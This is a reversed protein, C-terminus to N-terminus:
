KGIVLRASATGETLEGSVTSIEFGSLDTIINDLYGEVSTKLYLKNGAVQGTNGTGTVEYGLGQLSDAAKKAAGPVGSGNLVEFTINGREFTPTKSVEVQSEVVKVVKQESISRFGTVYFILIGCVLLSLVVFGVLGLVYLLRNKPTVGTAYETSEGPEGIPVKIPANIDMKPVPLAVKITKEM